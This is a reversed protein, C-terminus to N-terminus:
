QGISKVFGVTVAFKKIYAFSVAEIQGHVTAGQNSSIDDTRSLIFKIDDVQTSLEQRIADNAAGEIRLADHEAIYREGNPGAKPNKAVGRSLQKTLIQFAIESARNVIRAHQAYVYDSGSSSLLNANNIYAGQLGDWSRLVTLRLDDLGPNFYEDHYKVNNRTDTIKFGPVPGDDVFAADRGIPIRMLRAAVAWGVPRAQTIGTTAKGPVPSVVDGVDACLVISNSVSSGFIGQLATKYQAETETGITRPRATLVAIKFKGVLALASLWSDVTSVTTADAVDHVLVCEWPSQTTRLAELANTIDTNTDVPATTQVAFTDGTVITAATFDITIGTDPITLSTATGLAVEASQTLGGDLSYKVSVPGTGITGGLTCTVLVNYEDYPHSGSHATAVTAGTGVHTFSGFAGATSATGKVLMVPNQTVPLAYAAVEVLPGGTFESGAVDTRLFTEAQNATGGAAPAIIALVGTDSPRVVGTGGDTKTISISPLM